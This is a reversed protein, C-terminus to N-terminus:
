NELAQAADYGQHQSPQHVFDYYKKATYEAKKGHRWAWTDNCDIDLSIEALIGSLQNFERPFRDQLPICSNNIEWHDSWFLVIDGRGVTVSTVARFKDMLKCIDRWWFSGCLITDHPVRWISYELDERLNPGASWALCGFFAGEGSWIEEMSVAESNKGIAEPYWTTNVSPLGLYTFPMSGLQCGFQTALASAVTTEVNIPYMSSKHFNIELQATDASVFLLTDHAYQVVPYDPDHTALPLSLLGRRLLGNIMTEHQISDFAKEFDLKLLIIPKKSQNCEPTQKEPILTIFAENLNELHATGAHFEKVLRIFDSSIIPWCRKMFLGNFGDPGPAKDIPLDKIVHEIEKVEFPKTLVELGQVKPILSIIDNGLLIPKITGMRSKFTELFEKAMKGHDSSITGDSLQLSAISNKRYRETAM